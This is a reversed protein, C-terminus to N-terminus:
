RSQYRIIVRAGAELMAAEAFVVANGLADYSWNGIQELEVGNADAIFVRISDPIPQGALAFTRQLQTVTVDLLVDLVEGWDNDCIHLLRGGTENAARIYEDGRDAVCGRDELGVIGHLIFGPWNNQIFFLRFDPWDMRSEDDTVIVFQLLSGARLFNRYANGRCGDYCEIIREFANHSGVERDIHIFRDTDGCNPGALPPPICVDPEDRDTGRESVLVVHYDVNVAALRTAFAGLNREVQEVTDDMSGSNDVAMVFDVPRGTREEGVIFTEEADGFGPVGGEGGEGNGGAGGAGDGGAGGVDDGDCFEDVIGDCDNDLMDCEEAVPGQSGMCPGYAEGSPDCVRTGDSCEGVGQAQVPGAFCVEVGNCPCFVEDVNGDCDNDVADCREPVSVCNPERGGPQGGGQGGQGAQGGAGGAGGGVGDAGGVGGAGGQGAIPPLDPGFTGGDTVPDEAVPDTCAWVLLGVFLAARM